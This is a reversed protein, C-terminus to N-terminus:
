AAGNPGDEGSSNKDRPDDPLNSLTVAQSAVHLKWILQVIHWHMQNAMIYAGMLGRSETTVRLAENFYELMLVEPKVGVEQLWRTVEWLRQDVPYCDAQLLSKLTETFFIDSNAEKTKIDTERM